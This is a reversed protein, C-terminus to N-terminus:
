SDGHIHDPQATIYDIAKEFIKDLKRSGEEISLTGKKKELEWAKLDDDYLPQSDKFVSHNIENDLAKKERRIGVKLRAYHYAELLEPHRTLLTTFKNQSLRQEAIFERIILNKPDDAFAYLEEKLEKFDKM